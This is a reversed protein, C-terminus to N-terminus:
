TLVPTSNTLSENQRVTKHVKPNTRKVEKQHKRTSQTLPPSWMQPIAHIFKYLNAMPDLGINVLHGVSTGRAM